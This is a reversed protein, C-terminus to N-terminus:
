LSPQDHWESSYDFNTLSCITFFLCDTYVFSINKFKENVIKIISTKIGIFKIFQEVM